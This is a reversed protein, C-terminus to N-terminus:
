RSQEMATSYFQCCVGAIATLSHICINAVNKFVGVGYFPSGPLDSGKDLIENVSFMKMGNNIVTMNKYRSWLERSPALEYIIDKTLPIMVCSNSFEFKVAESDFMNRVTAKYAGNFRDNM